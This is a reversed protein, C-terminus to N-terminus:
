DSPNQPVVHEALPRFGAMDNDLRRPESWHAAVISSNRFSMENLARILQDQTLNVLEEILPPPGRPVVAIDHSIPLWAHTQGQHKGLALAYSGIVFSRNPRSIRGIRLGSCGIIESVSPAPPGVSSLVRAEHRTEERIDPNLLFDRAVENDRASLNEHYLDLFADIDSPGKVKETEAAQDPTRVWTRFHFHNCTQIEHPTLRPLANHRAASIIKDAVPKMLAEHKSFWSEPAQRAQGSEGRLTYLDKEVMLNKPNTAFVGRAPESKVFAYVKGSSDKFNRLLWQPIYHHRM